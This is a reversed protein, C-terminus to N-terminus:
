DDGSCELEALREPQGARYWAVTRRAGEHFGVPAFGLERRAKASSIRWYNYVYSRLNIPWFPEHGLLAGVASMAKATGVGLWGPISLRPWRLGAEACVIDFAERHTIWEDCIHYIEGPRGREFALLVAQAADAIYVPFQIYRGGDVQMIIGRMPDRFFLRNFAYHGLPGYYAGPRLVVVPLGRERQWRLAAAEGMLKSVQYPEVPRPPYTEDMPQTPDPTGIVAATSIHVLREVGAAAAARLLNETGTVNVDQFGQARGWFSFLGGAHVVWQCGALAASFTDPQRLDGSVAVARPYRRLWAAAQPQRTLVRVTHGARCLAPVLHRGLFGTGGTVFVTRTM